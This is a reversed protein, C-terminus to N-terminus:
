PGWRAFVLTTHQDGASNSQTRSGIRQFQCKEAVRISAANAEDTDLVLQTLGLDRFAWRSVLRVAHPAVGHGRSAPFVVYALAAVEDDRFQLNILGVPEDTVVAAIVLPAAQGSRWAEAVRTMSM